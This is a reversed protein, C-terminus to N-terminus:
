GDSSSGQHCVTSGICPQRGLLLGGEPSPNAALAVRHEPDTRMTISTLTIAVQRATHLRTSRLPATGVATVVCRKEASSIAALEGPLKGASL